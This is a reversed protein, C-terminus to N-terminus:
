RQSRLPIVEVNARGGKMWADLEARDIRIRARPGRGLRRVPFSNESAEAVLQQVTRLSVRTYAATEAMTLLGASPVSIPAHTTKTKM